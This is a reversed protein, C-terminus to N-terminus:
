KFNLGQINGDGHWSAFRVNDKMSRDAFLAHNFSIVSDITKREMKTTEKM